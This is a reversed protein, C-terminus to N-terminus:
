SNANWGFECNNWDVSMPATFFLHLLPADWNSNHRGSVFEGFSHVTQEGLNSKAEGLVGELYEVHM